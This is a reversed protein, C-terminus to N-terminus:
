CAASQNLVTLSLVYALWGSSAQLLFLVCKFFNGIQMPIKKQKKFYVTVLLNWTQFWIRPDTNHRWHSFESGIVSGFVAPTSLLNVNAFFSFSSSDSMKM